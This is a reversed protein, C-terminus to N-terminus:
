GAAPGGHGVHFATIHASAEALDAWPGPVELVTLAATPYGESMESFAVDDGSGDDLMHALYAITPNHGIVLVTKADAPVERIVDLATQPGASYLADEYVAEVDVDLGEDVSAWTSRTRAASSVVVHDPRLDRSALWQGAELADLRGRETLARSKDDAAYSEAKAHRM